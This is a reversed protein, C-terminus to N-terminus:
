VAGPAPLQPFLEHLRPYAAPYWSPMALMFAFLAIHLVMCIGGLWLLFRAGPRPQWAHGFFATVAPGLMFFVPLVALLSMGFLTLGSLPRRARLPAAPTTEAPRPTSTLPSDVCTTNRM